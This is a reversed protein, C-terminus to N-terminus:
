ESSTLEVSKTWKSAYQLTVLRFILENTMTTTTCRFLTGQELNPKPKLTSPIPRAKLAARMGLVM